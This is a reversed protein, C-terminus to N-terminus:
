LGPTTSSASTTNATSDTPKTTTTSTSTGSSASGPMPTQMMSSYYNMSQYYALWAPDFQGMDPGGPTTSSANNTSKSATQDFSNVLFHIFLSIKKTKIRFYYKSPWQGYASAWQSYPDNSNAANAYPDNNSNWTDIPNSGVLPLSFRQQFEFPTLMDGTGGPNNAVKDFMLQQATVIQEPTGRLKFVRNSPQGAQPVHSKDM